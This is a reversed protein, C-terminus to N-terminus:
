SDEDLIVRYMGLELKFKATRRAAITEVLLPEPNSDQKERLTALFSGDEDKVAAGIGIKCVNKDVAVDRNIKCFGQPPCEWMRRRSNISSTQTAQRTEVSSIEDQLHRVRKIVSNPNIYINKFVLQNRRWWLTSFILALEQMKDKNLKKFMQPMLEKLSKASSQSKQIKRHCLSLVDNTLVFELLIHEISEPEMLCMPCTPDDLVKRKCLNLKTPLM